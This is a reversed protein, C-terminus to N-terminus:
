STNKKETERPAPKASAARAPRALICQKIEEVVAVTTPSKCGLDKKQQIFTAVDAAKAKEIVNAYEGIWQIIKILPVALPLRATRFDYQPSLDPKDDPPSHV